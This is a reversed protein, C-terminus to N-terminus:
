NGVSVGANAFMGIGVGVSAGAEFMRGDQEVESM